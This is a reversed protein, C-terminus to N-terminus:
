QTELFQKVGDFQIINSQEASQQRLWSMGPLSPLWNSLYRMATGHQQADGVNRSDMDLIEQPLAVSKTDIDLEKLIVDATTFEAKSRLLIPMVEYPSTLLMRRKFFPEYPSVPTRHGGSSNDKIIRSPPLPDMITLQECGWPTKAQQGTKFLEPIFKTLSANSAANTSTYGWETLYAHRYFSKIQEDDFLDSASNQPVDSTQGLAFKMWAVTEPQKWVLATRLMYLEVQLDLCAIEESELKIDLYEMMQVQEMDNLSSSSGGTAASELLRVFLLGHRNRAQILLQISDQHCELSPLYTKDQKQCAALELQFKALAVSYSWNILGYVAPYRGSDYIDLVFQYDGSRIALFDIIMWIGLPDHVPDLKLLFKATEFATKWCGKRQLLTVQHFLAIFFPRNEYNFYDLLIDGSKSSLSHKFDMHFAREFIYFARALYESSMTFDGTQMSIFSLLLQCGAHGPFLQNFHAIAEPSLTSQMDLFQVEVKQYEAAHEFTFVNDEQKMSLGMRDIPPWYDNPSCLLFKGPFRKSKARQGNASGTAVTSSGFMKKLESEPDLMQLDVSLINDFRSKSDDKTDATVETQNELVTDFDFDDVESEPQVSAAKKKKKNKKNKKNSKSSPKAPSKSPQDEVPEKDSEEDVDAGEDNDDLSLMSFANVQPQAAAHYDENEDSGADEIQIDEAKQLLTKRLARASM